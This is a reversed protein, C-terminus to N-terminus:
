FGGTVFAGTGTNSRNGIQSITQVTAAGLLTVGLIREIPSIIKALWNDLCILFDSHIYVRDGPFLQYNTETDGAQVIAQWWVPLIQYCGAHAPVPRAVWIKKLSGQAPIGGIYSIADMVTEKGTIAFRYVNQGYGAGDTIVYFYKSNYASVTLSIEPNLLYKSLQREIAAKAQCLTLGAICVSGYSGLTITGDMNVLHEGRTQQIGRFQALAVSVQPDKLTRMLANRVAIAAQELTLGAVRVVGYSFGLSITGEPSVVVQGAIPQNPLADPVQVILVDLPEIRYPPRPILRVADLYLVDPPEIIYPPNYTM